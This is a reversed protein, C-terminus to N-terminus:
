ELRCDYDVSDDQDVDVWEVSGEAKPVEAESVNMATVRHINPHNWDSNERVGNRSHPSDSEVEGVNEPKEEDSFDLYRSSRTATNETTKLPFGRSLEARDLPSGTTNMTADMPQQPVTKSAEMNTESPMTPSSQGEDVSRKSQDELLSASNHMQLRGQTKGFLMRSPAQTSKLGAIKIHHPDIGIGDTSVSFSSVMMPRFLRSASDYKYLIKMATGDFEVPCSKTGSIKHAVTLNESMAALGLFQKRERGDTAFVCVIINNRNGEISDLAKQLQNKQSEAAYIVNRLASRIRDHNRSRALGTSYRSPELEGLFGSYGLSAQSLGHRPLYEDSDDDSDTLEALDHGKTSHAQGRRLSQWNTMKSPSMEIAKKESPEAESLSGTQELDAHSASHRPGPYSRSRKRSARGRSKSSTGRFMPMLQHRQEAEKRFSTFEGPTLLPSDATNKDGKQPTEKQLFQLLDSEALKKTIKQAKKPDYKNGSPIEFAVAKKVPTRQRTNKEKSGHNPKRKDTGSNNLSDDSVAKTDYGHNRGHRGTRGDARSHKRESSDEESSFRKRTSKVTSENEQKKSKNSRSKRKTYRKKQKEKQFDSSDSTENSSDSPSPVGKKSKRRSHKRWNQRKTKEKSRVNKNMRPRIAVDMNVESEFSEDDSKSEKRSKWELHNNRRTVQVNNHSHEYRALQERLSDNENETNELVASLGGLQKECQELTSILTSNSLEVANLSSKLETNERALQNIRENLMEGEHSNMHDGERRETHVYIDVKGLTSNLRELLSRPLFMQHDNNELSSHVESFTEGIAKKLEEVRTKGIAGAAQDILSEMVQQYSECREKERQVMDKLQESKIRRGQQVLEEDHLRAAYERNDSELQSNEQRLRHAENRLEQVYEDKQQKEQEAQRLQRKLDNVQMVLDEARSMEFNREERVQTITQKAVSASHDDTNYDSDYHANVPERAQLLQTKLEQIQKELTQRNSQEDQHRIRLSSYKEELAKNKEKLTTIENQLDQKESDWFKRQRKLETLPVVEGQVHEGNEDIEDDDFFSFERRHAAPSAASKVRSVLNDRDTRLRIKEKEAATAKREADVIVHRARDCLNELDNLVKRLKRKETSAKAEAAHYGMNLRSIEQKAMALEKQTSQLEQRVAHERDSAIKCADEKDELSQYLSSLHNVEEFLSDREQRMEKLTEKLEKNRKATRQEKKSESAHKQLSQQAKDLEKQLYSNQEALSQLQSQLMDSNENLKKEVLEDVKNKMPYAEKSDSSKAGSSHLPDKRSVQRNGTDQLGFSNEARMEEQEDIHYNDFAPNLRRSRQRPASAFSQDIDDVRHQLTQHNTQGRPPFESRIYTITNSPTYNRSFDNSNGTFTAAAFSREKDQQHSLTDRAASRKGSPEQLHLHRIRDQLSVNNRQLKDFTKSLGQFGQENYILHDNRPQTSQYHTFSTAHRGSSLSSLESAYNSGHRKFDRDCSFISKQYPLKSSPNRDDNQHRQGQAQTVLDMPM